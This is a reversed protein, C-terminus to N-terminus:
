SIKNNLLNPPLPPVSASKQYCEPDVLFVPMTVTFGKFTSDKEGKRFTMPLNERPESKANKTDLEQDSQSELECHWM